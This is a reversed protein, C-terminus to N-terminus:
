RWFRLQFIPASGTLWLGVKCKGGADKELSLPYNGLVTRFPASIGPGM